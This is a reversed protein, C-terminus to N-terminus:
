FYNDIRDNQVSRLPTFFRMTKALIIPNKVENLIVPFPTEHKKMRKRQFRDNPRIRQKNKKHKKTKKGK